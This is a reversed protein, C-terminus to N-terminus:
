SIGGDTKAKVSYAYESPTMGTIKKFQRSFYHVSTYGLLEAIQTFNRDDARIYQKAANIKMKSFYSIIGCSGRAAFLKQIQSSSVLLDQCIQEITLRRNINQHLYDILRDYLQQDNKQRVSKKPANPAEFYEMPNASHATVTERRVFLLLLEELYLKIMQLSGFPLPDNPALATLYPNDLPSSFTRIAEGFLRALLTREKEGASLIRGRFFEMAPSDCAFSVVVLNPAIVGNARVNHFENPRHFIIDGSHLTHECGDAEILVEGKDVFLFEWFDHCEGPFYFDSCYEFYHITIIDTIDFECRLPTFVFNPHM